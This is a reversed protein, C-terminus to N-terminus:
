PLLLHIKNYIFGLFFLFLVLGIGFKISSIIDSNTIQAPNLPLPTTTRQIYSTPSTTSSAQTVLNQPEATPTEISSYNRVRLNPIVEVYEKRDQAFFKIRMTYIGDSIMTTDWTGLLDQDEQIEGSYIQFWTNTPNEAYSFEIECILKKLTRGSGKIPVNGQLVGGPQPSIIQFGPISALTATPSILLEDTDIVSRLNNFILFLLGIIQLM